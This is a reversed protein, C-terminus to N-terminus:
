KSGRAVRHTIHWGNGAPCRYTRFRQFYLCFEEAEEKTKWVAKPKNLRKVRCNSCKARPTIQPNFPPASGLCDYAARYGAAHILQRGLLRATKRVEPPLEEYHRRLVRSLERYSAARLPPTRGVARLYLFLRLARRKDIRSM